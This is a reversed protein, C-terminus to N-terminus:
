IDWENCGEELASAITLAPNRKMALLAFLVVEITLSWEEARKIALAVIDIDDM